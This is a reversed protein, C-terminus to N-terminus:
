QTTQHVQISFLFCCYCCCCFFCVCCSSLFPLCLTSTIVSPINPALLLVKLTKTFYHNLVEISSPGDRLFSTGLRPQPLPLHFSKGYLLVPTNLRPLLNVPHIMNISHLISAHKAIEKSKCLPMTKQGNRPTFAKWTLCM